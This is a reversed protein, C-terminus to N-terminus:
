YFSLFKNMICARVTYFYIYVYLACLPTQILTDNTILNNVASVRRTLQGLLLKHKFLLFAQDRAASVSGNTAFFM